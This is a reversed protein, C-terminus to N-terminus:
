PLNLPSVLKANVIAKMFKDFEEIQVLEGHRFLVDLLSFVISSFDNPNHLLCLSFSQLILNVIEEKQTRKEKETEEYTLLKELYLSLWGIEELIFCLCMFSLSCIVIDNSDTFRFLFDQYRSSNPDASIQTSLSRPNTKM